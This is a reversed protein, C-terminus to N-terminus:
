GGAGAAAGGIFAGAQLIQSAAGTKAGQSESQTNGQRILERNQNFRSEGQPNFAISRGLEEQQLGTQFGLNALLLRATDNALPAFRDIGENIANPIIGARQFGFERLNQAQLRDGAFSGRPNTQGILQRIAESTRSEQRLSEETARRVLPTQAAGVEGQLLKSLTDQIPQGVNTLFDDFQGQQGSTGELIRDLFSKQTDLIIQETETDRTRAIDEKPPPGSTSSSPRDGM